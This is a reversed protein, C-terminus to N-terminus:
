GPIIAVKDANFTAKLLQNLDRMVQQFPESMLNLSRDTHIVSYERYPGFDGREIVPFLNKLKNNNNHTNTNSDAQLLMDTMVHNTPVTLTEVASKYFNAALTLLAVLGFLSCVILSRTLLLYVDREKPPSLTPVQLLPSVETLRDNRANATM